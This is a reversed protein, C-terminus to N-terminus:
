APYKRDTILQQRLQELQTYLPANIEKCGKRRTVQERLLVAQKWVIYDKKKKARLPFRDLISIVRKCDATSSVYLTVQPKSGNKPTFFNLRGGIRAQCKELIALDDDRLKITMRVDYSQNASQKCINFSGEGDIFGSLWCDFADEQTM